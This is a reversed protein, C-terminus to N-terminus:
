TADYRIFEDDGFPGGKSVLEVAGYRSVTGGRDSLSEPTTGRPLDM